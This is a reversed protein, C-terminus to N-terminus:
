GNNSEGAASDSSDPQTEETGEGPTEDAHLESFPDDADIQSRSDLVDVLYPADANFYNYM